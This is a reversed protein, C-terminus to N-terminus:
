AQQDNGAEEFFRIVDEGLFMVKRYRKCARLGDRRAQALAYDSWGTRQRVGSPSYLVEPRIEDPPQRTM